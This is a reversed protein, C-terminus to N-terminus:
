ADVCRSIIEYVNTSLKPQQLLSELQQKMLASRQADVTKWSLFSRALNSAVLPNITDMLKVQDSIFQYGSGDLSHFYFTNAVFGRILAYVNNPNTSQYSPHDLLSCVDDYCRPANVTAHLSLWKDLVLPEHQWRDHFQSLAATRADSDSYNLASLAGMVCTMNAHSSFQELALEKFKAQKTAVLFFLCSNKLARKSIAPMTLEYEGEEHYQPYANWWLAECATALSEIVFCRAVFWDTLNIAQNKQLLLMLPPIAILRTKLYLDMSEKKMVCQITNLLTVDLEMTDGAKHQKACREIARFMLLRGADCCAVADTDHLMLASLEDDSYDYRVHVPASFDRLLSPIPQSPVDEFVFVHQPETLELIISEQADSNSDKQTLLMPEGSSDMAGVRFPIHFPFAPRHHSLRQCSQAIELTWERSDTCYHQNVTVTPTGAQDYWRQFQTLDRGSVDVMAQVFDETTVASGDHREFYLDCGQRFLDSGILSRIMGIVEAGKEYVTMTYFNDIEMYSQERIAHSMPGADEIFQVQRMRDVQAIRMYSQSTMDMSFHYERFVTLGEKLTLQFWDRCTVRNGSWNHFYEHAIVAEVSIFDSDTAIDRNALACKTNFINLGKNEMAGMSFDSVAVVMYIDLDYERGYVTEDWRMARKLANMAYPAHDLFGKEVYFKLAVTRGSCTDITDELQKLIPYIQSNSESGFLQEATTVKKKIDYGSMPEDDLWALLKYSQFAPTKKSM